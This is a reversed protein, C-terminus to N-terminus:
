GLCAYAEVGLCAGVKALILVVLHREYLHSGFLRAVEKPQVTEATNRLWEHAEEGVWVHRLDAERQGVVEM